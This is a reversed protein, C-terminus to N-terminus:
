NCLLGFASDLHAPNYIDKNLQGKSLTPMLFEGAAAATWPSGGLSLSASPSKLMKGLLFRAMRTPQFSASSSAYLGLLYRQNNLEFSYGSMKFFISGPLCILILKMDWCESFINTPSIKLGWYRYSLAFHLPITFVLWKIVTPFIHGNQM